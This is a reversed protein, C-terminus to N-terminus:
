DIFTQRPSYIFLYFFYSTLQSGGLSSPRARSFFNTWFLLSYLNKLQVTLKETIKSCFADIKFSNLQGLDAAIRLFPLITTDSQPLFANLYKFLLEDTCDVLFFCAIQSQHGPTFRKRSFTM